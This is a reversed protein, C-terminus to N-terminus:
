PFGLGYFRTPYNTWQLDDFSATGNTLVLTQIPTWVQNALNTCAKVVV